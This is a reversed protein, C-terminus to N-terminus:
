TKTYEPDNCWEDPSKEMWQVNVNLLDFILWSRAGVFDKLCPVDHSKGLLVDVKFDPKMPLFTQLRDCDLLAKVIEKKELISTGDDVLAFIVLEATLVNAQPSQGCCCRLYEQWCTFVQFFVFLFSCSIEFYPFNMQLSQNQMFCLRLHYITLNILCTFNGKQIEGSLSIQEQHKQQSQQKFSTSEM